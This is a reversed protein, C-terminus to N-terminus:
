NYSSKLSSWREFEQIEGDMTEVEIDEISEAKEEARELAKIKAFYTPSQIEGDIELKWTYSKKSYFIRITM